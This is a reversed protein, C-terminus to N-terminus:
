VREVKRFAMLRQTFILPWLIRDELLTGYESAVQHVEPRSLPREDPFRWAHVREAL